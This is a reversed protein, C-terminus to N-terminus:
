EIVPKNVEYKKALGKLDDVLEQIHVAITNILNGYRKLQEEPTISSGMNSLLDIARGSGAISVLYFFDFITPKAGSPGSWNYTWARITRDTKGFVSSLWRYPDAGKQFLSSEPLDEEIMRKILLAGAEGYSKLEGEFIVRPNKLRKILENM